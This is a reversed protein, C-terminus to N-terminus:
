WYVYHYGRYCFSLPISHPSILHLLLLVLLLLLKREDKKVLRVTPSNSKFTYTTGLPLTNRCHGVASYGQLASGCLTGATALYGLLAWRLADRCHGVVLYGQPSPILIVGCETINEGGISWSVNCTNHLLVKLTPISSTFLKALTSLLLLLMMM